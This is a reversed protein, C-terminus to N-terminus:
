YRISKMRLYSGIVLTVPFIFYFFLRFSKMIVEIASDSQAFILSGKGPINIYLDENEFLMPFALKIILIVLATLAIQFVLATGITKLLKHTVFYLNFFFILQQFIFLNTYTQWGTNQLYIITHVVASGKFVSPALLSLVADVGGYVVLAFLPATIISALQMYLYKEFVSAPLMVDILGKKPHNVGYFFIFPSFIFIITMIILLFNMRANVDLFDNGQLINLLFLFVPLGGFAILFFLKTKTQHNLERKILRFFRNFQFTNNQM